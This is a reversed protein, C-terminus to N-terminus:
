TCPACEGEGRVAALYEWANQRTVAALKHPHWGKAAAVAVCAQAVRREAQGLEDADSELLLRDDPLRPLTAALKAGSRCSIHISLGFYIRRGLGGPLALLASATEPSGAFSHIALAPPVRDDGAAPHSGPGAQSGPRALQRLEHLLDGYARVCHISVPRRLRAAFRLQLRFADLQAAYAPSAAAARARDLGIEGVVARPHARLRCELQDSWDTPSAEVFWPHLGLGLTASRWRSLWARESRPWDAAHTSMLCLHNLGSGPESGSVHCHSDVLRLRPWPLSAAPRTDCFEIRLLVSSPGTATLQVDVAAQVPACCRSSM